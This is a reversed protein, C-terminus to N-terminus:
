RKREITREKETDRKNEWSQEEKEGFPTNKRGRTAEIHPITRRLLGLFYLNLIQYQRAKRKERGSGILKPPSPTPGPWLPRGEVSQCFGNM